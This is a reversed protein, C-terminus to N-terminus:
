AKKRAWIDGIRETDAARGREAEAQSHESASEAAHLRQTDVVGVRQAGSQTQVSHKAVVTSERAEIPSPDGASLFDREYVALVFYAAVRWHSAVANWSRGDAAKVTVSFSSQSSTQLWRELEALAEHIDAGSWTRSGESADRPESRIAVQGPSVFVEIAWHPVPM